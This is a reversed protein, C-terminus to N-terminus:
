VVCVSVSGCQYWRYCCPCHRKKPDADYRKSFDEFHKEDTM